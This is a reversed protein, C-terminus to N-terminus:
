QLKTYNLPGRRSKKQHDGAETVAFFHDKDNTNIKQLLFTPRKKFDDEIEKSRKM